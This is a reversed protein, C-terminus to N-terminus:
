KSAKPARMQERKKVALYGTAATTALAGGGALISAWDIGTAVPAAAPIAKLAAIAASAAQEGILAGDPASTTAEQETANTTTTTKLRVVKGANLEERVQVTVSRTQMDRTGACGALLFACWVMAALLLVSLARRNV